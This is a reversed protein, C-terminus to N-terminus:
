SAKSEEQWAAISPDSTDTVEMEPWDVQAAGPIHGAAFEDAPTLAVIRVAPNDLHETIWAPDVLWEPHAYGNETSAAPTAQPTAAAPTAEQAARVGGTFGPLQAMLLATLVTLPLFSRILTRSRHM